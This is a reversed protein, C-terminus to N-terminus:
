IAVLRRRCVLLVMGAPAGLALSTPEPVVTFSADDVFVQQTLVGGFSQIAYVSRALDAGAPVTATLSFETYDPGTPPVLNMTRTVETDSISNRWEIRVESGGSAGSALKHWGSFTAVQGPVLNPVDQFAGAFSNGLNNIFLELHQAGSRPMTSSNLSLPAGGTFGEWNDDFPAGDMTIPLEFGPNDFLNQASAWSGVTAVCLTVVWILSKGVFTRM